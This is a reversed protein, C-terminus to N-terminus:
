LFDQFTFAEWVEEVVDKNSIPFADFWVQEQDEIAEQLATSTNYENALETYETDELAIMKVIVYGFDTELVDSIEGNELHYVETLSDTTAHVTGSTDSIGYEEILDEVAEGAKLRALAEEALEKQKEQEAASVKEYNGDDGVIANGNEDLKATLFVVNEITGYSVKATESNFDEEITQELKRIMGIQTYIKTLVEKDLGYNKLVEADYGAIFEDVLADMEQEEEATLTIGEEVAKLYLIKSQRIQLLLQAKFADDWTPYADSYYQTMDTGEPVGMGELLSLAYYNVENLYVDDEGVSLVLVKSPDKGNAVAQTYSGSDADAGCGTLCISISMIIMLIVAMLKKNM